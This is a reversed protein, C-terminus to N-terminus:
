VLCVGVPAHSLLRMPPRHRRSRFGCFPIDVIFQAGYPRVGTVGGGLGGHQPRVRVEHSMCPRDKLRSHQTPFVTTCSIYGKAVQAESHANLIPQLEVWTHCLISNAPTVSHAIVESPLHWFNTTMNTVNFVAIVSAGVNDFGKAIKVDYFRQVVCTGEPRHRQHRLETSVIGYEPSQAHLRFQARRASPVVM